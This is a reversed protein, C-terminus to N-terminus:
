KPEDIEPPAGVARPAGVKDAIQDLSAKLWNGWDEQREALHWGWDEVRQEVNGDHGRLNSVIRPALSRDQNGTGPDLGALGRELEVENVRAAKVGAVALNWANTPTIRAGDYIWYDGEASAVNWM